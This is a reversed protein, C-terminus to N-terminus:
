RRHRQGFAGWLEQMQPALEALQRLHLDSIADLREAGHPTLTVHV